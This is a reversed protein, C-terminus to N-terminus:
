TELNIEHVVNIEFKNGSIDTIFEGCFHLLLQYKNLPLLINGMVGGGEERRRGWDQFLGLSTPLEVMEGKM